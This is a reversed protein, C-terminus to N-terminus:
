LGIRDACGDPWAGVFGSINSPSCASVSAGECVPTGGQKTADAFTYWTPEPQHKHGHAPNDLHNREVDFGRWRIGSGQCEQRRHWVSRVVTKSSEPRGRGRRGMGTFVSDHPSPCGALSFASLMVISVPAKTNMASARLGVTVPHAGIPLQEFLMSRSGLNIRRRM